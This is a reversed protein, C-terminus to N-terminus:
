GSRAPRHQHDLYAQDGPEFSLTMRLKSKPNKLQEHERQSRGAEHETRDDAFAPAQRKGKGFTFAQACRDQVRHRVADERAIRAPPNLQDVWRDFPQEQTGTVLQDSVMNGFQDLTRGIQKVSQLEGSM